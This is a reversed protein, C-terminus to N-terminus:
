DFINESPDYGSKVKKAKKKPRGRSKKNAKASGKPRGRKRQVNTNSSNSNNSNNLNQSKKVFEFMERKAEEDLIRDVGPMELLAAVFRACEEKDKAKRQTLSLTEAKM